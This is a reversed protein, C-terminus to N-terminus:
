EQHPLQAGVQFFKELDGNIIIEELKECKAGELIAETSLVLIRSKQSGGKTSALSKAEPQHMIAAVLCQKAM